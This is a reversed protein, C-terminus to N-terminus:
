WPTFSNGLYLIFTPLWSIGPTVPLKPRTTCFSAPCLSISIQWSFVSTMAFVWKWCCLSSEVYPCWWITLISILNIINKATMSPFTRYLWWFYSWSSVTAWIMFEKNGFESKFRLSLLSFWQVMWTHGLDFGKHNYLLILFLNWPILDSLTGSSSYISTWSMTCSAPILVMGLSFFHFIAFHKDSSAKCIATFLLSAFPLPSFSLYVWKFATNWLIPSILFGEETILALFLPFCYFPPLSSIEELFNSIGLSCKM